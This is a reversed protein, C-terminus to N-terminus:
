GTREALILRMGIVNVDSRLEVPKFGLKHYLSQAVANDRYVRLTVMSAGTDAVAQEILQECLARGYGHGRWDPSVILRCLHVTDPSVTRYQGFALPRRSGEVLSFSKGPVELLAPLESATFPYPLQPGAWRACADATPVWAVLAEYDGPTPTSLTATM